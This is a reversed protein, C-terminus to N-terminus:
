ARSSGLMPLSVLGEDVERLGDPISSFASRNVAAYQVADIAEASLGMDQLAVPKASFSVQM